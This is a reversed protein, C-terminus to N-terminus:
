ARPVKLVHPATNSKAFFYILSMGEQLLIQDHFSTSAAELFKLKQETKSQLQESADKNKLLVENMLLAARM